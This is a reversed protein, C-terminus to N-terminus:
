VDKLLFGGNQLNQFVGLPDYTKAIEKLRAINEKPYSALPNQDRGADNMYLFPIHSSRREGFDKWNQTTEVGISRVLDDHEPSDWDM